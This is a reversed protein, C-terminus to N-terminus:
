CSSRASCMTGNCPADGPCTYPLQSCQSRCEYQCTGSVCAWEGPCKVPADTRKCDCTTACSEPVAGCALGFSMLAAIILLTKM